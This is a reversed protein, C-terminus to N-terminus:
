AVSFSICTKCFGVQKVCGDCDAQTKLYPKCCAGCVTCSGPTCNNGGGSGGAIVKAVANVVPYEGNEFVDM